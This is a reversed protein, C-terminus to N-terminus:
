TRVRPPLSSMGPMFSRACPARNRGRHAGCFPTASSSRRMISSSGTIISQRLQSLEMDIFRRREAPAGKVLALDEPSFMVVNLVGMLEGSRQAQLRDIFVQKREGARLKMEIQRAGAQSQLMLGVYGGAM